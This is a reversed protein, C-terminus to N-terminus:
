RAGIEVLQRRKALIGEADIPVIIDHEKMELGTLAAMELRLRALSGTIPEPIRWAMGMRGVTATLLHKGEPHVSHSVLDSDHEFAPGIRKATPVHWVLVRGKEGCSLLLDNVGAYGIWRIATEHFLPKGQFEGTQVDLIQIQRDGGAIALSRADRSFDLATVSAKLLVERVLKLDRTDYIRVRHTANDKKSEGVAVLDGDASLRAANLVHDQETILPTLPKGTPDVITMQSPKRWHELVIPRDAHVLYQPYTPYHEPRKLALDIASAGCRYEHLDGKGLEFLFRRDESTLHIHYAFRSLRHEEDKVGLFPDWRCLVQGCGFWAHRGSRDWLASRINDPQPLPPGIHAFSPVEWLKAAAYNNGGASATVVQRGDGRFAVKVCNGEHWIPRILQQCNSVSWLFAGSNRSGALVLRSDPSFAISWVANQTRLARGYSAITGDAQIQWLAVHGDTFNMASRDESSRTYEFLSVAFMQGSPAISMTKIRGFLPASKNICKATAWDWVQLRSTEGQDLDLDTACGVILHRGDKGFALARVPGSHELPQGLAAGTLTNWLTVKATTELRTGGITALTQGDPSFAGDGHSGAFTALHRLGNGKEQPDFAVLSAKGTQYSCLWLRDGPANLRLLFADGDLIMPEGRPTIRGPHDPDM